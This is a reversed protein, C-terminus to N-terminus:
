GNRHYPFIDLTQTRTSPYPSNLRLSFFQYKPFMIYYIKTSVMEKIVYDWHLECTRRLAAHRGTLTVDDSKVGSLESIRQQTESKRVRLSDLEKSSEEFTPVHGGSGGGGVGNSASTPSPASKTSSPSSEASRYTM